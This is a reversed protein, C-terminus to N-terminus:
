WYSTRTRTAKPISLIKWVRKPCSPSTGRKTLCTDLCRQRRPYRGFFIPRSYRIPLQFVTNPHHWCLCSLNLLYKNGVANPLITIVLAMKCDVSAHSCPLLDIPHDKHKISMNLLSAPLNLQGHFVHQALFKAVMCPNCSLYCIPSKSM